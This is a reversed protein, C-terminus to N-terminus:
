FQLKFQKQDAPSVVARTQGDESKFERVKVIEEATRDVPKTIKQVPKSSACGGSLLLFVVMLCCFAKDNM